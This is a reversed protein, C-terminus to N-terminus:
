AWMEDIPVSGDTFELTTRHAASGARIAAAIVRAVNARSTTAVTGSREASPTPDIRGSPEALTLTSPGLITYNLSTGRLLADAEAKAQAYHWFGDEEPVSHTLSCGFYSVMVYREIGNRLAAVMSRKAATFDVAWTRQPAGGGAGASWVVADFGSSLLRNWDPQELTEIDTALPTAGTAAVDAEHAPNRIISVVEHGDAVLLPAALLAVKGHGGILAIRM